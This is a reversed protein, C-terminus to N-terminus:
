RWRLVRAELRRVGVDLLYGLLGITAMGAIVFDPRQIDRAV